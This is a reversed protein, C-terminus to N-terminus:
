KEEDDERRKRWVLFAVGGIVAVVAVFVAAVGPDLAIGITRPAVAMEGKAGALTGEYEVGIRIPTPTVRFGALLTTNSLTENSVNSVPSVTLGPARDNGAAMASTVTICVALAAVAAILVLGASFFKRYGVVNM